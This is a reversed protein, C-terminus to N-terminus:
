GFAAKDVPVVGDLSPPNKFVWSVGFIGRKSVVGVTVNDEVAYCDSRRLVGKIWKEGV